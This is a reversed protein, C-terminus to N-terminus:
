FLVICRNTGSPGCAGISCSEPSFVRKRGPESPPPRHPVWWFKSRLRHPYLYYGVRFSHRFGSDHFRSSSCSKAHSRLCSVRLPAPRCCWFISIEPHPVYQCLTSMSSFVCAYTRKHPLGRHLCKRSLFIFQLYHLSASHFSM